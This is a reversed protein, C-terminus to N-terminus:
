IRNSAASAKRFDNSFNDRMQEEYFAEYNFDPANVKKLYSTVLNEFTELRFRRRFSERDPSRYLATQFRDGKNKEWAELNLLEFDKDSREEAGHLNAGNAYKQDLKALRDQDNKLASKALDVSESKPSM